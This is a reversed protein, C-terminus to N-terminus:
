DWPAHIYFTETGSVFFTHYMRDQEDETSGLNEPDYVVLMDVPNSQCYQLADRIGPANTGAEVPDSFVKTVTIDNERLLRKLTREQLKRVSPNPHQLYIIAIDNETNIKM